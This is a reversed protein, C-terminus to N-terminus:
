TKILDTSFHANDVKSIVSISAKWFLNSIFCHPEARLPSLEQPACASKRSETHSRIEATRKGHWPLPLPFFVPRPSQTPNFPNVASCFLVQHELKCKQEQFDERFFTDTHLSPPSPASAKWPLSAESWILKPAEQCKKRPTSDLPTVRQPQSKALHTQVDEVVTRYKWSRFRLM